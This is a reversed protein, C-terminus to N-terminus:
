PGCDAMAVRCPDDVKSLVVESCAGSHIDGVPRRCIRCRDLPVRRSGGADVCGATSCLSEGPLWSPERGFATIEIWEVDPVAGCRLCPPLVATRPDSIV